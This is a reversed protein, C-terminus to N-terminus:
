VTKKRKNCLYVGAITMICGLIALLTIREDLVIYAVFLSTVPNFYLYNGAAVIGIRRIVINWILFCGLSAVLGLFLLTGLVTPNTLVSFSLASDGSLYDNICVPMMTLTGWFFVKRTIVSSTYNGEMLRIVLSYIGWLVSAGLSLFIVAPDDDLVFVGNMVVLSVGVLAVLSGALFRSSLKEERHFIRNMLATVIPTTCVLLAVTSTASSIKVATNESLFYLSGGTLGLIAFLMEDKISTVIKDHCFPMMLTWALIFRFCMIEAPTLGENLLVKSAVFTSGWLCATMLGLIHWRLNSNM